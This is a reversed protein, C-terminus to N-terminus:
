KKSAPQNNTEPEKKNYFYVIMQKPVSLHQYKGSQGFTKLSELM